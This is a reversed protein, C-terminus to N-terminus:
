NTLPMFLIYFVSFFLLLLPSCKEGHSQRCHLFCGTPVVDGTHQNLVELPLCLSPHAGHMM